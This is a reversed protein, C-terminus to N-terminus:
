ISGEEFMEVLEDEMARDFDEPVTILGKLWGTKPLEERAETYPTIKAVPEGRKSLIIEEGRMVRDVLSSFNTKAEYLGVTAMAGIGKM